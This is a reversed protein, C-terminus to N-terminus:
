RITVELTYRAVDNRETMDPPFVVIRYDGTKQVIISFDDSADSGDDNTQRKNDPGEILLSAQGNGEVNITAILTQGKDARVIYTFDNPGRLVGKIVVTSQGPPIQIRRSNKRQASAFAAAMLLLALIILAHKAMKNRTMTYGGSIRM